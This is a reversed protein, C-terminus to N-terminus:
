FVSDTTSERDYPREKDRRNHDITQSNDHSSQLENDVEAFITEILSRSDTLVKVTNLTVQQALSLACLRDKDSAANEAISWAESSIANLRFLIKTLQLPLRDVLCKQLIAKADEEIYKFDRNITSADVNLINAIQAQNKGKSMLEIVQARRWQVLDNQQKRNMDIGLGEALM